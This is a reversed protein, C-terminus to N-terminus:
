TWHLMERAAIDLEVWWWGVVPTQSPTCAGCLAEGSPKGRVMTCEVYFIGDDGANQGSARLAVRVREV